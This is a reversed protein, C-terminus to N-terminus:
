RENPCLRNANLQKDINSYAHNGPTHRKQFIIKGTELCFQTNKTLIQCKQALNHWVNTYAYKKHKNNEKLLLIERDERKKM